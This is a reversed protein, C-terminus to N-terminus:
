MDTHSWRPLIHVWYAVRPFLRCATGIVDNTFIKFTFLNWHLDIPNIFWGETTKFSHWHICKIETGWFLSFIGAKQDGVYRIALEKGM